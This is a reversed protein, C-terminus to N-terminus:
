QTLLHNGGQLETALSLMGLLGRDTLDTQQSLEIALRRVQEGFLLKPVGEQVPFIDIAKGRSGHAEAGAAEAEERLVDELTVPVGECENPRWGGRTEWSDETHLLDPPEEVGGGGQVVLDVEGSDIAQAEPELFGQGQLDGVDIALAELDMDVAALAGFVPVDGQGLLGESEEAGIPFGM